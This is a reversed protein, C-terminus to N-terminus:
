GPATQSSEDRAEIEHRCLPIPEVPPSQLARAQAKRRRLNARLQAALGEFFPRVSRERFAQVHRDSWYTELCVLKRPAKM